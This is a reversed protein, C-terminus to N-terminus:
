DSRRVEHSNSRACDTGKSPVGPSTYRACRPIESWTAIFAPTRLATAVSRTDAARPWIHADVFTYGPPVVMGIAAARLQAEPSARQSTLLRRIYWTVGHPAPGRRDDSRGCPQQGPRHRSPIYGIPQLRAAVPKTQKARESTTPIELHEERFPELDLPVVMDRYAGALYAALLAGGPSCAWADWGGGTRPMRLACRFQNNGWDCRVVVHAPTERLFFARTLGAGVLAPEAIAVYAGSGRVGHARHRQADTLAWATFAKLAASDVDIEIGGLRDILAYQGAAPPYLCEPDDSWLAQLDEEFGAALHERALDTWRPSPQPVPLLCQRQRGLVLLRPLHVHALLAETAALLDDALSPEHLSALLVEVLAAVMQDSAGILEQDRLRHGCELRFSELATKLRGPLRRALHTGALARAVAVAGVQRSTRADQTACQAGRPGGNLVAEVWTHAQRNRATPRAADASVYVV